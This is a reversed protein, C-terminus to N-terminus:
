EKIYLVGISSGILLINEVIVFFALFHDIPTLRESEM